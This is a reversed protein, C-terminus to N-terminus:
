RVIQFEPMMVVAWLLDQVGQETATKGLADRAVALEQKTPPRSLAATYIWKAIADTGAGHEKVLREAGKALLDTLEQGNNLDLAQLTSLDEPRSTVIQDRNPRGMTRQLLDAKVLSARVMPLTAYVTQNLTGVIQTHLRKTWVEPTAVAVAPKWDM